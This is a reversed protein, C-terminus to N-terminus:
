SEELRKLREAEQQFYEHPKLDRHKGYAMISGLMDFSCLLVYIAWLSNNTQAGIAWPVAGAIVGVYRVNGMQAFTLKAVHVEEGAQIGWWTIKMHAFQGYVRYMFLHGLEHILISGAFWAFLSFLQWNAYGLIM